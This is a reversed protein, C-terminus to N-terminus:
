KEGKKLDKKDAITKFETRNVDKGEKYFRLDKDTLIYTGGEARMYQKVEKVDSGKLRLDKM